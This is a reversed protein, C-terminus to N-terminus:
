AVAPWPRSSGDRSGGGVGAPVFEPEVGLVHLHEATVVAAFPRAAGVSSEGHLPIAGTGYRVGAASTLVLAEQGTQEMAARLRATRGARLAAPDCSVASG